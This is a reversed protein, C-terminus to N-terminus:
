VHENVVPTYFVTLVDQVDLGKEKVSAKLAKHALCETHYYDYDERNKFVTKAVFTYGQSLNGAYAPGAETSLIYRQGDQAPTTTM